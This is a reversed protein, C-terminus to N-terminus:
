RYIECVPDSKSIVELVEIRPATGYPDELEEAASFVVEAEGHFDPCEVMYEPTIDLLTGLEGQNTILPMQGELPDMHITEGGFGTSYYNVRTPELETAEETTENNENEVETETIPEEDNQLYNYGLFIIGAAIIIVLLPLFKKM